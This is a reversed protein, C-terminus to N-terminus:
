GMLSRLPTNVDALKARSMGARGALRTLIAMDRGGNITAAARISDSEDFGLVSFSSGAPDGRVVLDLEPTFMGLSQINADYQDSWLWPMEGYSESRGLMNAAAVAPQKQAVQWSEVRVSRGLAPVYHRTVEGAAYIDPDNTRCQRDVIIGDATEIGAAEALDTNPVVGIGAVAVDAHIASTGYQVEVGGAVDAVDTVSQGLQLRVGHARHLEAVRSSVIEPMGRKLVRDGPEIVTVQCGMASAVAAVELGIFGAGIVALSAGKNLRGRLARADDLTRLYSVSGSALRRVRSGTTLLLKDYPITSGDDLRVRKAQRDISVAMTNLRLEIGQDLYFSGDRVFAIDERRADMLADKSLGPRDYPLHPENGILVIDAGRDGSRLCEAARRGAQGAGIIIYRNM